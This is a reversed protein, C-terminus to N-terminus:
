RRVERPRLLRAVVLLAGSGAAGAFMVLGPVTGYLYHYTAGATVPLAVLMAIAFAWDLASM